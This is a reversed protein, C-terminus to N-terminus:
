IAGVPGLQALSGPNQRQCCDDYCHGDLEGAQWRHTRWFVVRITQWEPLSKTGGPMKDEINFQIDPFANKVRSVFEKVGEIGIRPFPIANHAVFDVTVVEDTLSTGGLEFM